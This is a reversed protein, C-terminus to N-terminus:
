AAKSHEPACLVARLASADKAGRLKQCIEADRFVRSVRALAKLHDSGASEPAILVYFLDAPEGDVAEFDIPQSTRVLCGFIKDVGDIRCHPIAVGRGMGTSGLREREILAACIERCDIGTLTELRHAVEQFLGKKSSARLDVFYGDELTLEALNMWDTGFERNATPSRRQLSRASRAGSIRFSNKETAPFPRPISHDVIM